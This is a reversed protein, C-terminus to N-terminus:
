SNANTNQHREGISSRPRDRLELVIYDTYDGFIKQRGRDGYITTCNVEQCYNRGASTIIPCADEM